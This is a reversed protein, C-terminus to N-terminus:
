ASRTPHRIPMAATGLPGGSLWVALNPSRKDVGPPLKILIWAGDGFV